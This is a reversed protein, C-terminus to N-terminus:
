GKKAMTTFSANVDLHMFIPIPKRGKFIKYPTKKLIVRILYHNLIYNATNAEEAWFLTPLSSECLITRAMYELTCNKREVV